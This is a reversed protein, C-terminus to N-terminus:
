AQVGDQTVGVQPQVPCFVAAPVPDDGSGASGDGPPPRIGGRDGVGEDRCHRFAAGSAGPGPRYRNQM